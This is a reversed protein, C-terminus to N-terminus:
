RIAGTNCTWGDFVYGKRKPEPVADVQMGYRFTKAQIATGGQTDYSVEHKNLLYRLELLLYKKPRNSNAPDDTDADAYDEDDPIPSSILNLEPSYGEITIPQAYLNQGVVGKAKSVHVPQSGGQKDPVTITYGTGNYENFQDPNNPDQIM